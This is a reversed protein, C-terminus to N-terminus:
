LKPPVPDEAVVGAMMALRMTRDNRAFRDWWGRCIAHQVDGRYLTSHCPINAGDDPNAQTADVM